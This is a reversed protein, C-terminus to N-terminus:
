KESEKNEFLGLEKLTYHKDLKMGKYMENEHFCPLRFIEKYEADECHDLCIRIYITDNEFYNSCVKCIYIVRDKFPRLVGKLYRKEVEDLIPQEIEYGGNLLWTLMGPRLENEKDYIGDSKLIHHNYPLRNGKKDIINFPVGMEVGLLKAVEKMKSEAM